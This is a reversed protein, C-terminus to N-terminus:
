MAPFLLAVLLGASVIGVSGFVLFRKLRSWKPSNKSLTAPKPLPEFCNPCSQVGSRATEHAPAPAVDSGCNPCGTTEIPAQRM